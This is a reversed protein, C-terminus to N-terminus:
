TCNSFNDSLETPGEHKISKILTKKTKKLIQKKQTEKKVITNEKNENTKEIWGYHFLYTLLAYIIPTLHVHV